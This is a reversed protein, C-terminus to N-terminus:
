RLTEPFLGPGDRAGWQWFAALLLTKGMQKM